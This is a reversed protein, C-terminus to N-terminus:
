RGQFEPNRKEVFANTGEQKDESTYLLAQALREIVQGTRLDTESGTQVVLRALRVALPGKALVQQATELAAKMLV